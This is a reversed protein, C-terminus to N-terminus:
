LMFDVTDGFKDVARYLYVWEGKIKTYTEDMRWSTAVSHKRKKAELATSLSSAISLMRLPKSDIAPSFASTTLCEKVFEFTFM